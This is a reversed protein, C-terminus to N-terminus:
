LERALHPAHNQESKELAQKMFSNIINLQSGGKLSLGIAGGQSRAVGVNPMYTYCMGWVLHPVHNFKTVVNQESMEIALKTVLM